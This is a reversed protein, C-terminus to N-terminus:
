QMSGQAATRSNFTQGPRTQRVAEIAQRETRAVRVVRHGLDQVLAQLELAILPEDEIIVVSTAIQSALDQNVEELLLKLEEVNVELVQAADRLSFRGDCRAFLSATRSTHARGPNRQVPELKALQPDSTRVPIADLANVEVLVSRYLAIRAPTSASRSALIGELAAIVCTDGTAQSGTLPM